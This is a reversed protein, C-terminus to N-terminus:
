LRLIFYSVRRLRLWTKVSSFCFWVKTKAKQRRSLVVQSMVSFAWTLQLHGLLHASNCLGSSWGSDSYFIDGGGSLNCCHVYVLGHLPVTTATMGLYM